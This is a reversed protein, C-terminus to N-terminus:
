CGFRRLAGYLESIAIKRQEPTAERLRERLTPPKPEPEPRWLALYVIQAPESTRPANRDNRPELRTVTARSRSGETRGADARQPKGGALARQYGRQAGEQAVISGTM